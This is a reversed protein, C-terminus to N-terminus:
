LYMRSSSFAVGRTFTYEVHETAALWQNERVDVSAGPTLHLAFVHGAGDNLFLGPAAAHGERNAGCASCGRPQKTALAGLLFGVALM